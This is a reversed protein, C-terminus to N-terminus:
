APIAISANARPGLAFAFFHLQWMPSQVYERMHAHNTRRRQVLRLKCFTQVYVSKAVFSNLLIMTKVHLVMICTRMSEFKKKSIDWSENAVDQFVTLLEVRLLTEGQLIDWPM